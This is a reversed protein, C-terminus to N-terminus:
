SAEVRHAALFAELLREPTAPLRDVSVGLADEIASVVAPAGGDMPLEGVGKAGFPGHRFPKEVLDVHMPPADLMTPIISTALRDELFRGDRQTVVERHAFGIAQLSGGEIQGRVLMPQIAKGIDVVSWFDTVTVEFTDLDVEVEAVDAAWGYTPYADGRYNADDWTLGPPSSYTATARADGGAAVFARARERFAEETSAGLRALLDECARVVCGGVIMCTRSAVTPGSDPVRATDAQEIEIDEPTTGLTAAAIATFMARTGQGIETSGAAIRVKGNDLLTAHVRGKLREEGSGTFGAGHFFFSLGRGRVRREDVRKPAGWPWTDIATATKIQAFVEDTACSDDLLQGTATRDGVRLANQERFVCPHLGLERAVRDMQREIAFCTQPAGFGRFAGFPVHNTAAVRGRIRVHDCRYAGAAHILARSLVVPSLTTYAGGDLVVDIDMAHLRGDATVGTEHRVCSPHRKPTVQLDEHRDYIIRIPRGAKIALLAAQCALVSPYDEKGGFGGGTALQVVRCREPPRALMRTLAKQVYHPCQLSGKVTVVGEEDPPWAIMGQTELYLQEQSDTRYEGNVTVNAEAMAADVDGKEITLEALTDPAAEFDLEAALPDIRPRLAAIAAALTVPDPAAVLAIAEGVHRVHDTALIPQDDVILAQVNDGPIDEPLAIVVRTFDFSPDRDLGALRGHAVDSRVAAGVWADAVEVDAVYCAQGRVKEAGDPRTLDVGM